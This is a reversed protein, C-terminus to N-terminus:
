RPGAVLAGAARLCSQAGVGWSWRPSSRVAPRSASAAQQDPRTRRPCPASCARPSRGAPAVHLVQLESRPFASFVARAASGPAEPLGARM